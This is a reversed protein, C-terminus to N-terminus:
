TVKQVFPLAGYRVDLDLSEFEGRKLGFPWRARQLMTRRKNWRREYEDDSLGDALADVADVRERLRQAFANIREAAHKAAQETPCAMLADAGGAYPERADYVLWINKM